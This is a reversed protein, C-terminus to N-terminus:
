SHQGILVSRVGDKVELSRAYEVAEPGQAILTGLAVLVRFRAEWDTIMHLFNISLVSM